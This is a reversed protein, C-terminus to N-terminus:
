TPDRRPEPAALAPQQITIEWGERHLYALVRLAAEEAHQGVEQWLAGALAATAAPPTM